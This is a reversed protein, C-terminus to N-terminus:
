RCLQLYENLFLNRMWAVKIRGKTLFEAFDVLRIKVYYADHFHLSFPADDLSILTMVFSMLSALVGTLFANELTCHVRVLRAMISNRM